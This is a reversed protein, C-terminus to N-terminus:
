LINFNCLGQNRSGCRLLLDLFNYLISIGRKDGLEESLVLSKEYYELAKPYDDQFNYVAGINNYLDSIMRKDGIEESIHLSKEYYKLAESYNSQSSYIVGINTYFEVIEEKDGLEKAVSSDISSSDAGTDIKADYTKGNEFSSKTVAFYFASDPDKDAIKLLYEGPDVSEYKDGNQKLYPELTKLVLLPVQKKKRSM